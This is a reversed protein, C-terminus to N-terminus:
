DDLYHLENLIKKIETLVKERRAWPIKAGDILRKYDARLNVDLYEDIIQLIEKRDILSKFCFKSEYDDDGINNAIMLNRKSTNIKKWKAMRSSFYKCPNGSACEECKCQEPPMRYLLDRRFNVLRSTAVRMLFTSLKGRSENYKPLAKLCFIRIEQKVDEIEFYGFVFAAALSNCVYDICSLVEKETFGNPLEM